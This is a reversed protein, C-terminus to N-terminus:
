CNVCEDSIRYEMVYVDEATDEYFSKLTRVARFGLQRFFVQATVNTERVELVIRNRYQYKLKSVIKEVMATGIGQLRFDPHVGFSLIHIRTKHVEYIMFGVVDNELESVIGICNKQRLVLLFEEETWPIEFSHREIELMFPMDRKIM